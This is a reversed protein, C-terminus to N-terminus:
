GSIVTFAYRRKTADMLPTRRPWIAASSSRTAWAVPTASTMSRRMWFRDFPNRCRTPMAWARSPFGGTSIRSSGVSPSSGLWRASTRWSMLPRAPWCVTMREVWRSETTVTVQSRTSIMLWPRITAKSSIRFRAWASPWPSWVESSSMKRLSVAAAQLRSPARDLHAVRQGDGALLQADVEARRPGVHDEGRHEADGGEEEHVEQGGELLHLP